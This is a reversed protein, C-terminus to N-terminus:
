STKNIRYVILICTRFALNIFFWIFSGNRVLFVSINNPNETIKYSKTTKYNKVLNEVQGIEVPKPQGLEALKM